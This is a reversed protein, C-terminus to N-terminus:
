RLASPLKVPLQMNKISLTTKHTFVAKHGRISPDSSDGARLAGTFACFKHSKKGYASLLPHSHLIQTWSFTVKFQSSLLTCFGARPSNPLCIHVLMGSCSVQPQWALSTPRLRAQQRGIDQWSPTQDMGVWGKPSTWAWEDKSQTWINSRPSREKIGYSEKLKRSVNIATFTNSIQLWQTITERKQKRFGSPLPWTSAIIQVHHHHDAYTIGDLTWRRFPSECYDM